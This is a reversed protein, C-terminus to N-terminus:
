GWWNNTATVPNGTGAVGATVNFLNSGGPTTTASNGAFRSFHITVPSLGSGDGTFIAGGHGAPSNGPFHVNNVALREFGDNAIGGGGAHFSGVGTDAATNNSVLTGGDMLLNATSSIGGGKGAATNGSISGGSIHNQPTTHQGQLFIGGGEPLITGSLH